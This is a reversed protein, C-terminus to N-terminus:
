AAAGRRAARAAGLAQDLIRAARAISREETAFARAQRGLRARLRDDDLLHRVAAAFGAGDGEPTLVGTVGDRVVDPVGRVKGAVVPLGSAQAELLAMGYAEGLAPWLYLDCAAYLEPLAHWPRGGALVVRERGLPALAEAVEARAPGEGVVLLQWDEGELEGLAAGLARYSALKDGGRMMAVALLWRKDPDLCTSAALAARAPRRREASAAFPGPDLFPPLEHLRAGPGVLPELCIRDDATLCLVADAQAIARGAAEHGLAWPGDAQKPAHAAEAVLYPIALGRSV